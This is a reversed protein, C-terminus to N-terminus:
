EESASGLVVIKSKQAAFKESKPGSKKDRTGKDTRKGRLDTCISYKWEILIESSTREDGSNIVRGFM